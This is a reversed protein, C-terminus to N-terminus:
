AAQEVAALLVSRLAQIQQPVSARVEGADSAVVCESDALKADGVVDISAVAPHARRLAAIEGSVADVQAPAVRIQLWSEAHAAAVADRVLPMLLARADLEPALRAVVACALEIVRRDLDIEAQARRQRLRALEQTMEERGHERGARTGEEHAQRRAADIRAQAEAYLANLRERLSELREFEAWAAADVIGDGADLAFARPEILRATTM